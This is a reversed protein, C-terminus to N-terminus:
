EATRRSRGPANPRLPGEDLDERDDDGERYYARPEVGIPWYNQEVYHGPYDHPYLYGEGHGLAKAGKYATSRLHLPVELPLGSRVDDLARKIAMYAHNSKPAKALYATVEALVIRAEPMGIAM